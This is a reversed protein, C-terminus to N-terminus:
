VITYHYVQFTTLLVVVEVEFPVSLAVGISNTEGQSCQYLERSWYYELSVRDLLFRHSHVVSLGGVLLLQCRNCRVGVEEWTRFYVAGIELSPQIWLGLIGSHIRRVTRVEV